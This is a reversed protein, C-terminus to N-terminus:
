ARDTAPSAGFPRPKPRTGEAGRRHLALAYLFLIAGAMEGSEELTTVVRYAQQDTTDNEFFGGAAMEFGAAGGIYLVAALLMTRAVPWPLAKLFGRYAFAGAACVILVPIVWAPYLAGHTDLSAQLVDSMREHLGIFEDASLAAFSLSLIAWHAFFRDSALRAQEAIEFLQIAAGLLVASSFWTSFNYEYDLDLLWIRQADLSPSFALFLDQGASLAVLVAALVGLCLPVAAPSLPRAGARPAAPSYGPALVDSM